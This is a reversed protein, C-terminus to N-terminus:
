KPIVEARQVKTSIATPFLTVDTTHYAITLVAKMM